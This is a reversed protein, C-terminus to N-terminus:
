ADTRQGHTRGRGEPRSLNRKTYTKVSRHEKLHCERCLWVVDLPRSYDKHHAEVRPNGCRACPSRVVKGRRVYVRLIARCVAKAKAEAPLERHPKRHERSYANHCDLCYRQNPRAPRAGCKSCLRM